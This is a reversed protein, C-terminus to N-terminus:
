GASEINPPLIEALMQVLEQDTFNHDLLFSSGLVMSAFARSVAGSQGKPLIGIIITQTCEMKELFALEDLDPDYIDTVILHFQDPLLNLINNADESKEVAYVEDMFMFLHDVLRKVMVKNNKNLYILSKYM